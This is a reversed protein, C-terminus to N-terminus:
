PEALLYILGCRSNPPYNLKSGATTIQQLSICFTNLILVHPGM